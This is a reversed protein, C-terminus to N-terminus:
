AIKRQRLTRVFGVTCPLLLLVGALYTSPEPVVSLKVVFQGENDAWGYGDMTGLYFRTAGAPVVTSGNSGMKFIEGLSPGTFVGILSCVEADIDPIGNNAGVLHHKVVGPFGDPGALEEPHGVEGSAEWSLLTGPTVTGFLVPAQGPVTDAPEDTGENDTGGNALWPDATGPVTLTIAAQSQATSIMFTLAILGATLSTGFTASGLGKRVM